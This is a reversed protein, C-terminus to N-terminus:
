KPVIPIGHTNQTVNTCDNVCYYPVRFSELRFLKFTVQIHKSYLQTQCVDLQSYTSAFGGILITVRKNSNFQNM